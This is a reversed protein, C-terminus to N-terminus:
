KFKLNDRVFNTPKTNANAAQGTSLYLMLNQHQASAASSQESLQTRPNLKNAGM